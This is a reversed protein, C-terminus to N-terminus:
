IKAVGEVKEVLKTCSGTKSHIEKHKNYDLPTINSADNTGGLKLSQVHHADYYDGAKRIKIGSENFVDETYRPWEKHNLTEWDKRIQSKNNNFEERLQKVKEPSQIDLKDTDLSKITDAFESKGKLDSIYEKAAQRIDKGTIEKLGEPAIRKTIDVKTSNLEAAKKGVDIRKGIDVTKETAAKGVEKATEKAAELSVKAATVGVEGIM